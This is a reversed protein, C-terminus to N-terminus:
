QNAVGQAYQLGTCLHLMIVSLAQVREESQGVLFAKAAKGALDHETEKSKKPTSDASSSRQSKEAILNSSNPNKEPTTDSLLKITESAVLNAHATTESDLALRLKSLQRYVLFHITIHLLQEVLLVLTQNVLKNIIQVRENPEVDVFLTRSTTKALAMMEDPSGWGILSETLSVIQERTIDNINNPLQDLKQIVIVFPNTSQNVLSQKRIMM